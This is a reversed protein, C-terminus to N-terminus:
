KYNTVLVTQPGPNQIDVDNEATIFVRKPDFPTVTHFYAKLTSTFFGTESKLQGLNKTGNNETEMWIVYYKKSPSLRSPETLHLINLDLEY